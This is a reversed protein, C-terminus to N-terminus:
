FVWFTLAAGVGSPFTLVVAGNPSPQANAGPTAYPVGYPASASTVLFGVAPRGLGHPVTLKLGAPVTLPGVLVGDLLQCALVPNLANAVNDISRSLQEDSVNFQALSKQTLM